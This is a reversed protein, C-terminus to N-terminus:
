VHQQQTAWPKDPLSTSFTPHTIGVGMTWWKKDSKMALPRKVPNGAKPM